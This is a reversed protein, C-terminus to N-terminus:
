YVTKRRVQKEDTSKVLGMTIAREGLEIANNVNLKHMINSRHDEITRRSRHLINAVEKNSKGQLILRLITMEAKTLLKESCEGNSHSQKLASQVTELFQERQLPKEIFDIAGAKVASVALPVDGYGTIVLVPLSPSISGARRLLEIGDMGPMRVDTILMDCSKVALQKLCDAANAFCSIKVGLPELTRAIARRVGAEDDVIFIHQKDATM